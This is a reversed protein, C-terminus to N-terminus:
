DSLAQCLVKVFSRYTLPFRRSYWAQRIKRLREAVPEPIREGLGRHLGLRLAASGLPTLPVYYRPVEIRQFGNREKFDSLSDGQKKGYAFKSYVLYPIGQSACIRVAQAILANTPAKDRQEILSVINMLGAQTRTHDMVIKIFGILRDQLYAGVFISSDLYTAEERYVTELSKGYHSFPRGQRVPCENYIEWIGRVLGDGFPVERIVVGKKEAQKAKNRAKFGLQKMWWDEFSPITIAAFNDWTMAYSFKPAADPLRQLFTFLDVRGDSKRLENLVSEPDGEIFQYRDADLRATRLFRGSVRIQM